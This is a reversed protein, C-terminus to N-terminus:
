SNPSNQAISIRDLHTKCKEIVERLQKMNEYDICVLPHPYIKAFMKEKLLFTETRKGKADIVVDAVVFDAIYSMKRHKEGDGDTFAEQLVFSVQTKVKDKGFAAVLAIYVKMEWKSDYVVGEFTRQEPPSLNYKGRRKKIIPAGQAELQARASPGLTSLDLRQRHKQRTWFPM